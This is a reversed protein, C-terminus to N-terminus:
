DDDKDGVERSRAMFELMGEVGAVLDAVDRSADRAEKEIINGLGALENALTILEKRSVNNRVSYDEQKQLLM